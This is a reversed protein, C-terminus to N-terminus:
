ATPLILGENLHALFRTARETAVAGADAPGQLARFTRARFDEASEVTAM